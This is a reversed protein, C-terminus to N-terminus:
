SWSPGDTAQIGHNEIWRDTLERVKESRYLYWKERDEPHQNMAEKIALPANEEQMAIELKSLLEPELGESEKMFTKLWEIKLPVTPPTVYIRTSDDRPPGGGVAGREHMEDETEFGEDEGEGELVVHGTVADLYYVLDQNQNNFARELEDWDIKIPKRKM